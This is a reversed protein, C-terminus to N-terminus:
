RFRGRLNGASTAAGREGSNREMSLVVRRGGLAFRVDDLFSKMMLIGRGSSLLIEPDDSLCRALVRDVDFGPGEDTIIWRCADGDYDVVIDVKRGSFEPDSARQALAQAFASDGQEKM